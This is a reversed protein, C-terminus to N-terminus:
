AVIAGAQSAECSQVEGVDFAGSGFKLLDHQFYNGSERTVYWVRMTIGDM